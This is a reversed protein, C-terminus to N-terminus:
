PNANAKGQEYRDRIEAPTLVSNLIVIEDVGGDLWGGAAEDARQGIHLNYTPTGETATPTDAGILTGDLYVQWSNADTTGATTLVWCQWESPRVVLPVFGSAIFSGTGNGMYIAIHNTYTPREDYVGFRLGIHSTLLANGLLQPQIDPYTDVRAWVIVTKKGVPTITSAYKIVDNGDFDYYPGIGGAKHTAGLIIAANNAGSWDKAGQGENFGIQLVANAQQTEIRERKRGATLSLCALCLVICTLKKMTLKKM